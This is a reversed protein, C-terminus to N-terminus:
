GENTTQVDGSLVGRMLNIKEIFEDDAQVFGRSWRIIEVLRQTKAHSRVAYDVILFDDIENKTKFIIQVPLKIIFEALTTIRVSPIHLVRNLARRNRQIHTTIDPFVELSEYLESEVRVNHEVRFSLPRYM